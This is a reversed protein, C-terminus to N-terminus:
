SKSPYQLTNQLVIRKTFFVWVSHKAFIYQEADLPHCMPCAYQVHKM